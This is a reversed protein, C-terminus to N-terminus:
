ADPINKLAESALKEAFTCPDDMEPTGGANKAYNIAFSQDDAIALDIRCLSSQEDVRAGPYGEVETAKFNDSKEALKAIEEPGGHTTNVSIATSFADNRWSCAPEGLGSIESEPPKAGTSGGLQAFQEQTLLQCPDSVAKINKPNKVKPAASTTAEDSTTPAPVNASGPSCASVGLVALLSM